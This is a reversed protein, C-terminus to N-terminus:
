RKKNELDMKYHIEYVMLQHRLTRYYEGVNKYTDGYRNTVSKHLKKEDEDKTFQQIDFCSIHKKGDEGGNFDWSDIDRLEKKLIPTPVGDIDRLGLGVLSTIRFLEWSKIDEELEKIEEDNFTRFLKRRLKDVLKRGEEYGKSVKVNRLEELDEEDDDYYGMEELIEDLMIDDELEDILEDLDLEEEDDMDELSKLTSTIPKMRNHYKSPEVMSVVENIKKKERETIPIGSLEMMRLRRQNPSINKDTPKIRKM